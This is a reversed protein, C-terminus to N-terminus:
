VAQQAGPRPVQDGQHGGGGRRGRGRGGRGGRRGGDQGRGRAGEREPELRQVVADRVQDAGAGAVLRVVRGGAVGLLRGRAAHQRPPAGAVQGRERVPRDGPDVARAAQAVAGAALREGPLPGGRGAVGRGGG